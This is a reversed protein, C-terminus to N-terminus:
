KENEPQEYGVRRVRLHPIHEGPGDRQPFDFVGLFLFMPYDPAQDCVRTTVGDILFEVSGPQWRVAYTHEREVDLDRVDASFDERLAPDRFRHIGQGVAARGAAVTDGFVEVVCIEGCRDPQDELGVMWASFMSRPSLQASCTVSVTGFHPVFGLVTPQEERVVLGDRFPQPADISGVPGSRNASQVASVRLPGDHLDPCWLGQSPPISLDLGEPGIAYTAAAAARSSWAPLYSATWIAPDLESFREDFPRQTM